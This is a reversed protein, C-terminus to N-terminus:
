DDHEVFAQKLSPVALFSTRTVQLERDGFQDRTAIELERPEQTALYVAYHTKEDLIPKAEHGERHKVAPQCFFRPGTLSVNDQSGFQDGLLVLPLAPATNIRIVQYCKYHDLREPFSSGDHSTKQTPVLLSRATRTDVSRQGFQNRFRVTRRPEPATQELEYWTLHDDPRKIETEFGAHSKRSPNGFHTIGRLQASVVGSAFQDQLGVKFHAEVPKVEYFRFHDPSALVSIQFICPSVNACSDETGLFLRCEDNSGLGYCWVLQGTAVPVFVQSLQGPLCPVVNACTNEDGLFVVCEGLDNEGMCWVPADLNLGFPTAANAVATMCTLGLCIQVLTRAIWNKEKKKM